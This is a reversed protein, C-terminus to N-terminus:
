RRGSLGNPAMDELIAQVIAGLFSSPCQMLFETTIAVPAKGDEDLVDWSVLTDALYEAMVRASEATDQVQGMRVQAEPTLAGPRYDVTVTEGLYEVRVTRTKKKLDAISIGM